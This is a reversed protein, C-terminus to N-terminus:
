TYRESTQPALLWDGAEQALSQVMVQLDQSFYLKEASNWLFDSPLNKYLVLSNRYVSDLEKHGIVNNTAYGEIRAGSLTHELRKELDSFSIQQKVFFFCEVTIKRVNLELKMKLERKDSFIIQYHCTHEPAFKPVVRAKYEPPAEDLTLNSLVDPILETLIKKTANKLPAVGAEYFSLFIIAISLPLLVGLLGMGAQLIVGDALHTGGFIAYIALGIFIAIITLSFFKVWKPISVLKIIQLLDMAVERITRTARLKGYGTHM